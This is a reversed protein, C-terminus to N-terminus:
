GTPFYSNSVIFRPLMGWCIDVLRRVCYVVIIENQFYGYFIASERKAKTEYNAALKRM